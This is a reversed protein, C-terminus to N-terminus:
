RDSRERANLANQSKPQRVLFNAGHAVTTKELVLGAFIEHEFVKGFNRVGYGELLQRPVNSFDLHYWARFYMIMVVTGAHVPTSSM